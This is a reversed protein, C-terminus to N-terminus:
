FEMKRLTQVGMQLPIFVAAGGLTLGAGAGLLVVWLNPPLDFPEKFAAMQVHWPLAMLALILLLFLLGAVLNLTGGLGVAIKSPDTERFNPMSAGLGVSLGSLGLALVVVTLVHLVVIAWPMELMLDSLLVLFGALLVTGTAAFAFKGWLLQERKVPLLGLVWFKRGELSLLPYVFRGTYTCLLLSVACLNLLSIWNQHVWRIDGVFMKRINIVYLLMLGTFILIQAWQQPDRRFTKFDKLLLLRTSPRMFPLCWGLVTEVWQGGYRKRLTGGTAIRNFGRRYLHRAAWTTLLYCFLGNSWLLALYYAANYEDGNAAARLGDAVWHSPLFISNAIRFRELLRNVVEKGFVDPRRSTMLSWVWLGVLLVLLVFALVLVQKRHRPVFNVILLCCLGGVLTPVLIFGIFYLPLYAYFVWPSGTVLGYAILIPAGLLLFAWSSFAVAGQYKYAFVQDAAVPKSLLFATEASTFLSGYLILGSSFVLFVGLALFLLDFLTGIIDGRLPLHIVENLFRFGGLSVLFVFVWVLVSCLLITLPRVSGHGLLVRWSNRLLRLRLWQFLRPQHATQPPLPANM